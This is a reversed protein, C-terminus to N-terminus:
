EDCAYSYKRSGDRGEKERMDMKRMTYQRGEVEFGELDSRLEVGRGDFVASMQRMWCAGVWALRQTRLSKHHEM